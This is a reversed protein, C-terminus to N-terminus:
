PAKHIHEKGKAFIRFVGPRADFKAKEGMVAHVFAHVTLVRQRQIAECLGPCIEGLALGKATADTIGSIQQCLPLDGSRSEYGGTLDVFLEVERTLRCRRLRSLMKTNFQAQRVGGSKACVGTSRFYGFVFGPKLIRACKGTNM